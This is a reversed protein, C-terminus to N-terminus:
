QVEIDEKHQWLLVSVSDRGEVRNRGDGLPVVELYKDGESFASVRYRRDQSSTIPGVSEFCSGVIRQGSDLYDGLTRAQEEKGNVM